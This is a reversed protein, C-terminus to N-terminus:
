VRTCEIQERGWGILLKAVASIDDAAIHPQQRRDHKNDKITIIIKSVELNYPSFNSNLQKIQNLSHSRDPWDSKSNLVCHRCLRSNGFGAVAVTSQRRYPRSQQRNQRCIPLLKFEVAQRPRCQRWTPRSRPWLSVTSKTSKGCLWGHQIWSQRWHTGPKINVHQLDCIYCFVAATAPTIITLPLSFSFGQMCLKCAIRSFYYCVAASTTHVIMPVFM